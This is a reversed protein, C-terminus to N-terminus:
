RNDYARQLVDLDLKVMQMMARMVRDARETDQDRLMDGLKVPAIQWSVGFKDKLWGCQGPEGGESLKSWLEDVEEQNGCSVFLSIAPTFTFAPGGNLAMFEQGEIKFSTFVVQGSQEDGIRSINLVESNKFTSVYFNTAEEAQNDYWLFPRIKQM